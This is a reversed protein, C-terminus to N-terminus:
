VRIGTNWFGCKSDDCNQGRYGYPCHCKYRNWGAKVCTGGNQCPRSICPLFVAVDAFLL